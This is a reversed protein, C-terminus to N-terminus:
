ATPTRQKKLLVGVYRPSIKEVIGHQMAVQALWERTWHTFPLGYDQPQECAVAMIQQKQALTIQSPKGARPRDSLVELMKALLASDPVGQGAKGGEFASLSQYTEIWRKRWRTVVKPDIELEQVLAARSLGAATGLIIRIRTSQGLSAGRRSVHQELIQKQRESLQLPSRLGRREM